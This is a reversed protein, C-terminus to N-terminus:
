GHTSGRATLMINDILRTTGFRVALSVLLRRGPEIIAMEDLTEADAVSIYEVTGSSRTEILARMAGMVVDPRREGSAISGSAVTLSQYLVPAQAREGPTLYGNRSSMALGDPERVIPGVLLEIDFNLDRILRRVIVVQQADKQGFVAVHPRTVNFLKAVITAVGRFHGPRAKGELIGELQEPVVYTRYGPPYMAAADPAFVYASGAAAARSVDADLNRPYRSYDEGAGFQAPNVFVTTVITDAHQRAIGLLSLHGDHLAGMTPVVAIRRGKSRLGSALRQMEAPDHIVTAM